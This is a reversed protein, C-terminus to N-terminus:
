LVKMTQLISSLMLLCVTVFGSCLVILERWDLPEADVPGTREFTRGSNERESSAAILLVAFIIGVILIRLAAMLVGAMGGIYAYVTEGLRLGGTTRTSLLIAGANHVFHYVMGVYLSDANIVLYALVFGLMLQIPFSELSGHLMAFLVSSILLARLTGRREWAGLIAGRFLMEECVAPLLASCLLASTLGWPSSGVSIADQTIRGGLQQILIMWLTGLDNSLLLGLGAAAAAICVASVKPLNLRLASDVGPHHSRHVLVPTLLVFVQLLVSASGSFVASGVSPWLRGLLWALVPMLVVGMAAFLYFTCATMISPRRPWNTFEGDLRFRDLDQETM